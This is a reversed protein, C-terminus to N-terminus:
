AHGTGSVASINIESNQGLTIAPAKIEVLGGAGSGLVEAEIRASTLNFSRTATLFIEGGDGSSFSDSEIASGGDIGITDATLAIFGGAGDGKTSSNILTGTLAIDDATLTIDAGDGEGFTEGKIDANVAAITTGAITLVGADGTGSVASINIESDQGLTIAPAKIEVLGGAGSGLVEAEIRANTLNFSRTATLIIEGGDGSSFSDSEVASGGDISITDASLVISGGIGASTTSANVDVNSWAITEGQMSIQGAEGLGETQAKISTQNLGIDTADITLSGGVGGGLTDLLFEADTINVNQAAIRITGADGGNDLASKSSVDVTSGNGISITTADFLIDSGSGLGTAEGRIEANSLTITSATLQVTAGDGSGESGYGAILTDVVFVTGGQFFISGGVTELLSDAVNINGFTSDGMRVVIEQAHLDADRITIFESNVNLNYEASDVVGSPARSSDISITGSSDGLFGFSSIDSTSLTSTASPNSFYRSGDSFEIYDATSLHFTGDIDVVAGNTFIFGAPNVLWLSANSVSSTIKGAISSEGGTVRGVINSISIPGAFNAQEGLDINFKDFSHFLNQGAQEGLDATINYTFGSGASVSDGPNVSNPGVSGDLTVEAYGVSASLLASILILTSKFRM